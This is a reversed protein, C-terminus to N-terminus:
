PAFGDAWGSRNRSRRKGGLVDNGDDREARAAPQEVTRNTHIADRTAQRQQQAERTALTDALGSYQQAAQASAARADTSRQQSATTATALQGGLGATNSRRQEFAGQGGNAGALFSDFRGMGSTYGGGKGYTDQLLAQRGYYDAGLAGSQQAKRGANAVDAYGQMDQLSSPGTYQGGARQAAEGSTGVSGDYKLTGADVQRGYEDQLGQLGTNFAGQQGDIFSTLADAMRQGGQANLAAYQQPNVFGTGRTPM